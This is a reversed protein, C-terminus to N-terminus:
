PKSRDLVSKFRAVNAVVNTQSMQIRRITDIIWCRRCVFEQRAGNWEDHDCRHDRVERFLTNALWVEDDRRGELNGVAAQLEDRLRRIVYDKPDDSTDRSREPQMQEVQFTEDESWQPESNTNRSPM